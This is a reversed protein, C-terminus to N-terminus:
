EDTPPREGIVGQLRKISKKLQNIRELEMALPYTVQSEMLLQQDPSEEWVPRKALPSFTEDELNMICMMREYNFLTDSKLFDNLLDDSV